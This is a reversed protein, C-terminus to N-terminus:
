STGMLVRSNSRHVNSADKFKAYIIFNIFRQYYMKVGTKKKVRCIYCGMSIVALARDPVCVTETQKLLPITPEFGATPM